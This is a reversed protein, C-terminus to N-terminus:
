DLPLLIVRRVGFFPLPDLYDPGRKAGLHLCSRPECHGAEAPTAATGTETKQSSGAGVADRTRKAKQLCSDTSRSPQRRRAALM